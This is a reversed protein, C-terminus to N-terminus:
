QIFHKDLLLYKGQDITQEKQKHSHQSKATQSLETEIKNDVDSIRSELDHFQDIIVDLRNDLAKLKNSSLEETKRSMDYFVKKISKLQRQTKLVARQASTQDWEVFKQCLVLNKKFCVVDEWKGSLVGKGVIPSVMGEYPARIQVCRKKPDSTPRETAWNHYDPEEGDSNLFYNDSDGIRYLDTWISDSINHRILFHNVFDEEETSDISVLETKKKKLGELRCM